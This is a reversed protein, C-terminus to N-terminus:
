PVEDTQPSAQRELEREKKRDRQIARGPGGHRLAM